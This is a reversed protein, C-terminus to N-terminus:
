DYRDLLHCIFQAATTRTYIAHTPPASLSRASRVWWGQTAQPFRWLHLHSVAPDAYFRDGDGGLLHSSWHTFPDHSVRHVPFPFLCSNFLPVGWGDLAIMAKITGGLHQWGIAAGAAGVVGASFAILLLQQGLLHPQAQLFHLISCASYGPYQETPLVLVQSRCFSLGTLFNQTFEPPHVGPCILIPM